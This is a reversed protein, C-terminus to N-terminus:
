AVVRHVFPNRLLGAGPSFRRLPFRTISVPHLGRSAECSSVVAEFKRELGLEVSEPSESGQCVCVGSLTKRCGNKPHRCVVSQPNLQGNQSELGTEMIVDIM